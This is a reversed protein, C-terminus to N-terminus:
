NSGECNRANNELNQKLYLSGIILFLLSFILIYLTNKGYINMFNIPTNTIPKVLLYEFISMTNICLHILITYFINKTKYYIYCTFVSGLILGPLKPINLHILSFLLTTIILSKLFSNNKMLNDFLIGKIILEEFVAPLLAITILSLFLSDNESQSVKNGLLDSLLYFSPIGIIIAFTLSVLILLLVIKYKTNSINFDQSKKKALLGLVFFPLAYSFLCQIITIFISKNQIFFEFVGIVTFSIVTLITIFLISEIINKPFM